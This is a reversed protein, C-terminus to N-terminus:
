QLILDSIQLELKKSSMGVTDWFVIKDWKPSPYFNLEYNALGNNLFANDKKVSNKKLGGIVVQKELDIIREIVILYKNDPSLFLAKQERNILGLLERNPTQGFPTYTYNHGPDNHLFIEFEEEEHLLVLKHKFLKKVEFIEFEINDLKTNQVYGEGYKRLKGVSFITNGFMSEAFGKEQYEFKVRDKEKELLEILESKKVEDAVGFTMDDPNILVIQLLKGKRDFDYISIEKDGTWLVESSYADGVLELISSKRPEDKSFGPLITTNYKPGLSCGTLVILISCILILWRKM